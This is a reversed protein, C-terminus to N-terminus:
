VKHVKNVCHSYGNQFQTAPLQALKATRNIGWSIRILSTPLATPLTTPLATPLTTPLTTPLYYGITRRIFYPENNMTTIREYM